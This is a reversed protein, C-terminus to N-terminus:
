AVLVERQYLETLDGIMAIPTKRSKNYCEIKENLYARILVGLPVTLRYLNQDKQIFLSGITRKVYGKKVLHSVLDSRLKRYRPWDKESILWLKKLVILEYEDFRIPDTNM